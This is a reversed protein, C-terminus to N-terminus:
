VGAAKMKEDRHVAGQFTLWFLSKEKLGSPDPYKIVAVAFSVSDEAKHSVADRQHKTRDSALSAPGHAIPVRQRQGWRVTM